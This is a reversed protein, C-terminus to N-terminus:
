VTSEFSIPYHDSAKVGTHVQGYSARLPGRGFAWDIRRHDEFLGPAPTTPTGLSATVADQVWGECTAASSDSEFADLNLVLRPYLFPNSRRSDAKKHWELLYQDSHTSTLQHRQPGTVLASAMVGFVVPRGM